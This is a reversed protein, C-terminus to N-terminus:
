LPLKITFITGKGESSKLDLYGGHENIIRAAISLGLGTGDEKCTFFPQFIKEQISAPIGTGQDILRIIAIHETKEHIDEEHVTITGGHEMAECANVLLNVLVEKLQEPDALLEPLRKQREVRLVVNYSELRDRLLRIANDVVDSPSIKKMKLKPPRSYELFNQVINNIHRIEESIVEFDMKQNPSLELSREMSFLRMKVSTLPNRISHAVGAAFKGVLAFKEMDKILDHVQHSLKAVENKPKGLSSSRDIEQTLKRVPGLVQSMLIFSLVFSLLVATSMATGAIFRLHKAQIQSKNWIENIKTFYTNKYNDCLKLIKFYLIRVDQHLQAGTEKDGAKYLDIVRYKVKIYERYESEIKNVIEKDSKTFAYEKAKKLNEEFRGRYKELEKLWDPNGDIFFYSVFGKQNALDTELADVVRHAGMEKNILYSFLSELRYTYWIM